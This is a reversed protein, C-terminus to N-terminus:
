SAKDKRYFFDLSVGLAECIKAYEDVEIQRKRNMIASMSPQSIGTKECIAVQKIGLNTIYEILADRIMIEGRKM